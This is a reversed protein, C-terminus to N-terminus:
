PSTHLGRSTFWMKLVSLISTTKWRAALVCTPLYCSILRLQDQRNMESLRFRKEREWLRWKFGRGAEMPNVNIPGSNKQLSCMLSSVLRLSEDVDACVFHVSGAQVLNSRHPIHANCISFTCINPRKTRQLNKILATWHLGGIWVSGSFSCCLIHDLGVPLPVLYLHM